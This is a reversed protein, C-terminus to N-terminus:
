EAVDIDIMMKVLECKQMALEASDGYCIVYGVRDVSSHIDTIYDDVNKQLSIESVGTMENIADVGKIKLIKGKPAKLYSIASGTNKTKEIEPEEGLAMQISAKVMDIGTSLPVLHTAICDGGMRAGIEIMKPGKVTNMIEAHVAGNDIGIAHVANCSLETIKRISERDLQSPQSHGIEVFHPAGTTAKDTIALVLPAGNLVMMEVSVESGQLYEEIIVRSSKSYTISYKIAEYLEDNSNILVVGRSGSSDVPKSICPFEIQMDSLNIGDINDIIYYWPHSVGKQEFLKIMVEKDTANIATEYSISKLGLKTCAYAVSRIPLDTALTMIGDANFDRAANLVGVEDITSVNYYKDAYEIGVANPNFDVVGVSLDMEKAKKIAPLQLDSAGVILIRKKNNLDM